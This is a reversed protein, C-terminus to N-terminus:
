YRSFIIRNMILDLHGKSWSDSLGPIMLVAEFGINRTLFPQDRFKVPEDSLAQM